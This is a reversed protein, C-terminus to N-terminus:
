SFFDFQVQLAIQVANIVIMWYSNWVFFHYWFAKPFVKEKTEQASLCGHVFNM